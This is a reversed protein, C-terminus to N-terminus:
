HLRASSIYIYRNKEHLRDASIDEGNVAHLILCATRNLEEAIETGLEQEQKLAYTM